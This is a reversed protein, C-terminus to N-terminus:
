PNGGLYVDIVKEDNLIQGASGEALLKGNFMVLVRDAYKMVLEMRHEIIIFTINMRDRLQLIKDFVEGALTPNVGAAPEDLLLIDPDSMLARGIELLKMQGGSLSSPREDKMRLLNLLELTKIAKEKLSSDQLLWHNRRLVAFGLRDGLQNKGAIVMNDLVSMKPFLRPTQFSRSLNLNYIRYPPLDEIHMGRLLVSGSEPRYTGSISNFLSTKGSGNPGILGVIEARYVKFSVGNVAKVGGFSLHLDRVELLPESKALRSREKLSWDRRGCSLL